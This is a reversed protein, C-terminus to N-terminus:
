EHRDHERKWRLRGWTLGFFLLDRILAGLAAGTAGAVAAGIGILAIATIATVAWIWVIAVRDGVGTLIQMGLGGLCSFIGAVVCIQIPLASDLTVGFVLETIPDTWLLLPIAMASYLGGVVTSVVLQQRAVTRQSSDRAAYTIAAGAPVLAITTLANEIQSALGYVGVASSSAAAAVVVTDSRNMLNNAIPGISYPWTTRVSLAGQLRLHGRRLGAYQSAAIVGEFLAVTALQVWIPAPVLALAVLVVVSTLRVLGNLTAAQRFRGSGYAASTMATASLYAASLLGVTVVWCGLSSDDVSAGFLAVAGACGLTAAFAARWSLPSLLTSRAGDPNRAFWRNAQPSLGVGGVAAALYSISTALVVAGLSSVGGSYGAVAMLVLTQVKSGLSAAITWVGDVVGYRRLAALLRKM